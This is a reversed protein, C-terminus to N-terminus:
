VDWTGEYYISGDDAYWTWSGSGTANWIMKYYKYGLYYSVAEGSGDPHIVFNYKYFFSEQMDVEMTFDGGQVYKWTYRMSADYGMPNLYITMNGINGDKSVECVIYKSRGSGMDIDMVYNYNIDTEEFTLWITFSYTGDTYNWTYTVPEGLGKQKSDVKVANDPVEFFKLYDSISNAQQIYGACMQAYENDSQILQQPAKVILTENGGGIKFTKVEESPKLKEVEVVDKDKKCSSFVVVMLAIVTFSLWKIRM